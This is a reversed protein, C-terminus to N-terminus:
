FFLGLEFGFLVLVSELLVACFDVLDVLELFLFLGREDGAEAFFGLERVCFAM